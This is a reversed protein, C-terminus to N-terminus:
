GKVVGIISESVFTYIKQWDPKDALMEFHKQMVDNNNRIAPGTQANLPGLEFAKLLTEEILPKLYEFPIEKEELMKSAITYM